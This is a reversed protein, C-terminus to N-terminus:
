IELKQFNILDLFMMLITLSLSVTIYHPNKRLATVILQITKEGQEEGDTEPRSSFCIQTSNVLGAESYYSNNDNPNPM